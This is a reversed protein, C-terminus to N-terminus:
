RAGWPRGNPVRQSHHPVKWSQLCGGSSWGMSGGRGCDWSSLCSHKKSLFYFPCMKQGCVMAPHIVSCGWVCAAVAMVCHKCTGNIGSWDLPFLRRNLDHQRSALFPMLFPDSQASFAFSAARPVAAFEWGRGLCLLASTSLPGGSWKCKGWQSFNGGVCFWVRPSYMGNLSGM